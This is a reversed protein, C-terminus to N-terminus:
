RARRGLVTSATVAIVLVAGYFVNPVWTNSNTGILVLQLGLTGTALFYAALLAGIPTFRGAFLIATGLFVTAFMPLLYTQAAAADFGGIKAASLVGGVGAIAAGSVFAGLRIRNVRVGALRSVERNEGVFRMNRGLPTFQLVYTFVAMLVLGLYFGIPLGFLDTNVIATFEAPMGSIPQAGSFFISLGALVTSMGLTVVITNVGLTVVLIGNILGILTAAVIAVLASLWVNLDLNVTLVAVLTGSMGFVAAVSMDVFEGVIVTCLLAAALFVIELQGSLIVRPVGPTLFREPTLLAFVVIMLIWVAIVAYRSAWWGFDRLPRQPPVPVSTVTVPEHTPASTSM